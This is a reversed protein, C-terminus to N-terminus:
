QFCTNACRLVSQCQVNKTSCTDRACGCFQGTENAPNMDSQGCWWRNGCQSCRAACILGEVVCYSSEYTACTITVSGYSCKNRLATFTYIIPEVTMDADKDIKEIRTTYGSDILSIACTSSPMLMNHSFRSSHYQCFFFLLLLRRFCYHVLRSV